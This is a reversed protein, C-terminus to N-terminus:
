DSTLALGEVSFNNPLLSSIPVLEINYQALLPLLKVLSDVTQPHPHAIAVVSNYTQADKILQMFQKSIYEHTLENDLFIHRHLSPVGFRKAVSEAQSKHTTMSDVFILNREKLFQMTWAMPDYLQTLKSGM